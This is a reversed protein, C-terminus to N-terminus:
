YNYAKGKGRLRKIQRELSDCKCYICLGESLDNVLSERGCVVCEVIENVESDKLKKHIKISCKACLNDSTLKDKHFYENCKICQKNIGEICKNCIGDILKNNYTETGCLSCEAINDRYCLHCYCSFNLIDKTAERGCNICEIVLDEARACSKCLFSYKSMSKTDLCSRLKHCKRCFTTTVISSYNM